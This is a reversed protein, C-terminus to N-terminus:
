KDFYAEGKRQKILVVLAGGGGKNPRTSCFALIAEWERLWHNLSNKLIPQGSERGKGHIILVHRIVNEQCQLIFHYLAEKADKVTMGHLDLIAEITYQGTRLNRLIKHPIGTQHFELLEDAAVVPLKEYDSFPAYVPDEEVQRKRRPLRKPKEPAIKSTELRKVGAVAAEFAAKDEPTIDYKKSM